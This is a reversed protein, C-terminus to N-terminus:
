IPREGQLVDLARKALTPVGDEMQAFFPDDTQGALHRAYSGELLIALKWISFAVYWDLNTVTVDTKAEYRDILEDRTPFGEQETMRPEFSLVDETPDEPERWFSLMWGVDALPDGLTAMEWDLIGVLRPPTGDYVVNDLKYDGHVVTTPQPDPILANLREGVEDLTPVTRVEETRERTREWQDQWRDVQRELYGDPYGIQELETDDWDIAHLEALADVLETGIAAHMTEPQYVEPLETRIVHGDMKEMLYFETGIVDPDECALVPEPTRAGKGELASLIRYERLVDHATPLFAGRPPRRLVLQDSGWTIFFTENSYGADEREVQYTPNDESRPLNEELFARLNEEQVLPDPEDDTDPTQNM